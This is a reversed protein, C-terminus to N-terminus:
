GSSTLSAVLPVATLSPRHADGAELGEWDHGYTNGMTETCIRGSGVVRVEKRYDVGRTSLGVNLSEALKMTVLTLAECTGNGV